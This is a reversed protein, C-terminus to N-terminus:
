EGLLQPVRDGGDPWLIRDTRGPWGVAVLLGEGTREFRVPPEPCEPPLPLMVAAFEPAPARVAAIVRPHGDYTDAEIRVPAAAHLLLRFRPGPGAEERVVRMPETVTGSEAELLATGPPLRAFPPALDPDATVLVADVQAGSERTAFRLRHEGAALTFAVPAQEVGNTVRAWTWERAGPMHWPIPTGGDASVFFSDAKVPEPGSVRVRAWVSVRGPQPLTFGWECAGRGAAGLPTEVFAAGSAAPPLIFVGADAVRVAM